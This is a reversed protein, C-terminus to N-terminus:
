EAGGNKRLTNLFNVTSSAKAADYEEQTMWILWSPSLCDPHECQVPGFMEGLAMPVKM